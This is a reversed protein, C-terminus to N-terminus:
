GICASAGDYPKPERQWAPASPLSRRCRLRPKNVRHNRTQWRDGGSPAGLNSSMACM